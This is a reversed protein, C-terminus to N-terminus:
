TGHSFSMAALADAEAIIEGVRESSIRQATLLDRRERLMDSAVAGSEVLFRKEARRLTTLTTVPYVGAQTMRDYLNGEKPYSWGLLHIGTCTAYEVAHSTFKTNTILFLRDVTCTRDGKPVAMLDDYRAKVYLAVKVDTKYSPDNHYKLEAAICEDKRSAYVDVEHPVCKGEIIRRTEVTYGEKRLLHSIFDEFPFGTPGFELLARRLSYRAAVHRAERRLMSFARRYVETSRAGPGLTATVMRTIREAVHPGAGAKLLSDMLKAPEFHEVTGDAKIIDSM